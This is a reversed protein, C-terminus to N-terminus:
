VHYGDHLWCSSSRLQVGSDNLFVGAKGERFFVDQSFVNPHISISICSGLCPSERGGLAGTDLRQGFPVKVTGGGTLGRTIIRLDNQTGATDKCIREAWSRITIVVNEDHAVGPSRLSFRKGGIGSCTSQCGKCSVFVFFRPETQFLFEGEEVKVLLCRQAPGFTTDGSARLSWVVATNSWFVVKATFDSFAHVSSAQVSTNCKRSGIPFDHWTLLFVLNSWANTNIGTVLQHHRSVNQLTYALIELNVASQMGFGNHLTIPVTSTHVGVNGGFFHTFFTSQFNDFLGNVLQTFLM